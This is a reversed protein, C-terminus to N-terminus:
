SKLRLVHFIPVLPFVWLKGTKQNVFLMIWGIELFPQPTLNEIRKPM